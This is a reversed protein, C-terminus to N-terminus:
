GSHKTLLYNTVRNQEWCNYIEVLELLSCTKLKKLADILQVSRSNKIIHISMITYVFCSQKSEKIM